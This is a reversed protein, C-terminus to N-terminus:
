IYFLKEVETWIEYYERPILNEDIVETRKFFKGLQEDKKIISSNGKTPNGFSTPTLMCEDYEIDLKKSIYKATDETKVIIDDFNVMIVKDGYMLKLYVYDIIKHFWM